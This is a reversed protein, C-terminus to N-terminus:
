DSTLKFDQNPHDREVTIDIGDLYKAPVALVREETQQGDVNVTRGTEKFAIIYVRIKGHPVRPAVYHGDRIEVSGGGGRGSDLPAFALHGEALPQGDVTVRGELRAAAPQKGCGAIGASAVAVLLVIARKGVGLRHGVLAGGYPLRSRQRDRAAM